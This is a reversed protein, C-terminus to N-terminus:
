GLIESLAELAIDLSESDKEEKKNRSEIIVSDRCLRSIVKDSIKDALRNENAEATDFDDASNICSIVYERATPYGYQKHNRIKELANVDNPSDGYFRLAMQKIM